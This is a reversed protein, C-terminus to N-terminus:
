VQVITSQATWTQCTALDVNKGHKTMKRGDKGKLVLTGNKWVQAICFIVLGTDADISNQTQRLLYVCQGVHLPRLKPRCTGTRTQTFRLKDRHQVIRLNAMAM